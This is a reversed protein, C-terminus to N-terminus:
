RYSENCTPCPARDDAFSGGQRHWPDPCEHLTNHPLFVSFTGLGDVHETNFEWNKCSGFVHCSMERKEGVHKLHEYFHAKCTGFGTRTGPNFNKCLDCVKQLKFEVDVLITLKNKDM